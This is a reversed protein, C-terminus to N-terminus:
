GAVDGAALRDGHEARTRDALERDRARDQEAGLLDDRDVLVVVAELHRAVAGARGVDDVKRLVGVDDLLELHQGAPAPRAGDGVGAPGRGRGAGAGPGGAGAGLRPAGGPWPAKCAASPMLRPLRESVSRPWASRSAIRAQRGPPITEIM